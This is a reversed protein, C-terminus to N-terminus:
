VPCNKLSRNPTRLLSRPITAMPAQSPRFATKFRQRPPRSRRSISKETSSFTKLKSWPPTGKGSQHENIQRSTGAGLGEENLAICLFTLSNTRRVINGTKGNFVPTERLGKKINQFGRGGLRIGLVQETGPLCGFDTKACRTLRFLPSIPRGPPIDVWAPIQVPFRCRGNPM